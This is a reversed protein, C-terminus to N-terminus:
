NRGLMYDNYDTEGRKEEFMGLLQKCNVAVLGWCCTNDYSVLGFLEDQFIGAFNPVNAAQFQNKEM